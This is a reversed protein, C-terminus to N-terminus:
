QNKSLHLVFPGSESASSMQNLIREAITRKVQIVLDICGSLDVRTWLSYSCCFWQHPKTFLLRMILTRYIDSMCHLPDYGCYSYRAGLVGQTQASEGSDNCMHESACKPFLMFYFPCHEEFGLM